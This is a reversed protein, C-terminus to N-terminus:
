SFFQEAIKRAKKIEKEPVKSVKKVIGHTCLVLSQSDKNWVALLRYRNSKNTVRFEWVDDRLKKFKKPDICYQCQEIITFLKNRVKEDLVELFNESEKSLVVDFLKIM